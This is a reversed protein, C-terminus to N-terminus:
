SMLKGLHVSASMELTMMDADAFLSPMVQQSKVKAAEKFGQESANGWKLRTM